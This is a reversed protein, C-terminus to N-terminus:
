FLACLIPQVQEVIRDEFAFDRDLYDSTAPDACFPCFCKMSSATTPRSLRKLVKQLREDIEEDVQGDVEEEEDSSGWQPSGARSSLTAAKAIRVSQTSRRLRRVLRDLDKESIPANGQRRGM